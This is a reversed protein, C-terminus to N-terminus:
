QAAHGDRERKLKEIDLQLAFRRGADIVFQEYEQDNLQDNEYLQQRMQISENLRNIESEHATIMDIAM